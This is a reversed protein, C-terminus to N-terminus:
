GQEKDAAHYICFFPQLAMLSWLLGEPVNCVHPGKGSTGHCRLTKLSKGKWVVSPLADIEAARDREAEMGRFARFADRARVTQRDLRHQPTAVGHSM